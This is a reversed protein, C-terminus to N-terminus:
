HRSVLWSLLVAHQHEEWGNLSSSGTESVGVNELLTESLFDLLSLMM